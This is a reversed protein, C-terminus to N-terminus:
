VEGFHPFQGLHFLSLSFPERRIRGDSTLGRRRYKEGRSKLQWTGTFIVGAVPWRGRASPGTFRGWGKAPRPSRASPSGPSRPSLPSLSLPPSRIFHSRERCSFSGYRMVFLSLSFFLWQFQNSLARPFCLLLLLLPPPPPPPLPPSLVCFIYTSFPGKFHFIFWSFQNAEHQFQIQHSLILRCHKLYSEIM